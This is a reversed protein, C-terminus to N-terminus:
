LLNNAAFLGLRNEPQFSKGYKYNHFINPQNEQLVACIAHFMALKRLISKSESINFGNQISSLIYGKPALDDFLMAKNITCVGFTEAILADTENLQALLQSIKPVIQGYFEIEKNFVNHASLVEFAIGDSM